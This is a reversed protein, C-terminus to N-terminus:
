KSAREAGVIELTIPVSPHETQVLAEVLGVAYITKTIPKVWPRCELSFTRETENEPIMIGNLGVNVPQVGFPLDQLRFLVRGKFGNDRDVALTAKAEGGPTLKIKLTKAHVQIDPKPMLSIVKLLDGGNAVRLAPEGGIKAKAIVRYRAWNNALRTGQRHSLILTVSDEDPRIVGSTGEIGGPLGEFSVEVPGEFGETRLIKVFVSAKSGEPINPNGPSASVLLDPVADRLTFRYAFDEGGLNRVDAVRAYYTGDAPATFTVRSDKGYGPGGDDNRMNLRFVPMGNPPFEAGAPHLEVKYVPEDLAHAEPTTDEFALRKGSGFIDATNEGGFSRFVIDEDAGPASTLRAVQMLDNGAIMYDNLELGTPQFLRLGPSSSDRDRLTIQTKYVARATVRPVVRGTQDLVEVVSDLPSGLRSAAIELILKQGKRATFKYYDASPKGSADLAIRGNVTVPSSLEQATQLSSNQGTEEVEEYRGIAIPLANVTEGAQTQALLAGVEMVKGPMMGFPQPAATRTEGLNYGWVEFDRTTGAKLGLPYRGKLFPFPGLSLRYFHRISGNQQYDGVRVTYRGDLPIKFGLSSRDGEDINSAVRKGQADYLEMVPDLSSGVEGATILFVIEQGALARFGFHDYDGPKLILGNVTAPLSVDQGQSMADNPEREQLEPYASVVLRGPTSSGHPTIIRFQQTGLAMWPEATIEVTAQVKVPEDFYPRVVSVKKTELALRSQPVESVSLIKGKLGPESFVIDNAGSLDTGEIVFTATTGRQIGPPTTFNVTPPTTQSSVVRPMLVLSIGFLFMLKRLDRM